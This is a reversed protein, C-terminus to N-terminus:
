GRKGRRERKNVKERRGNWAEGGEQEAAWEWATRLLCGGVSATPSSIKRPSCLKSIFRSCFDIKDALVELSSGFLVACLKQKVSYQVQHIM